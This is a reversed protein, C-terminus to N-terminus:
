RLVQVKEGSSDRQKRENRRERNKVLLSPKLVVSGSCQKPPCIDFVHGSDSPTQNKKNDSKEDSNSGSGGGGGVGVAPLSNLPPHNFPSCRGRGRGRGGDM